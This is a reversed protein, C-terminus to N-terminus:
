RSAFFLGRGLLGVPEFEVSGFGAEAFATEYDARTHAGMRDSEVLHEIARGPRWVLYHTEQQWFREELTTTELLVARRGPEEVQATWCGDDDGDEPFDWPEVIALRRTHRAMAAVAAHLDQTTRTYAISSSLCVVVDFLRGLDFTRMDAAHLPVDPVRARALRLMAASADIGEVDYWRRFEQLHWGTGCAVDLLSTAGPARQAILDRVTRAHAAHEGGRHFLDYLDASEDSWPEVTRARM